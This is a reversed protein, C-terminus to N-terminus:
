LRSPSYSESNQLNEIFKRDINGSISTHSDLLKFNILFILMPKIFTDPQLTVYFKNEFM